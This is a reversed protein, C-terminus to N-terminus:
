ECILEFEYREIQTTGNKLYIKVNSEDTCNKFPTLDYNTDMIENAKKLNDLSVVAVDLEAANGIMFNSFYNNGLEQLKEELKVNKEKGCATILLIISVFLLIKKM